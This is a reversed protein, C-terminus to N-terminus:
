HKKYDQAQAVANNSYDSHSTGVDLRVYSQVNKAAANYASIKGKLQQDETWCPFKRQITRLMMILINTGQTLHTVILGSGNENDGWSNRLIKRAHSEWSIIGTILAPKVCLKKGAKKIPTKYKDMARLNCYLLDEPKATKCSAGSTKIRNVRNYCDTCGQ